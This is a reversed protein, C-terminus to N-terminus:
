NVALVVPAAPARVFPVRNSWVSTVLAGDAARAVARVAAYYTSFSTPRSPLPGGCPTCTTPKPLTGEQIPVAASADSFYGVVYHDIGAYDAHDFSIATPNTVQGSAHGSAMAWVITAAYWRRM